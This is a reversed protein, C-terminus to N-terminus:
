QKGVVLAYWNSIAKEGNRQSENGNWIAFGLKTRGRGIDIGSGPEIKRSVVVHWKGDRWVGKGAVQQEALPKPTITGYGRATAEEVPSSRKALAIQNGAELAALGPGPYAPEVMNPHADRPGLKRGGDIQEQWDAKWQWITVQSNSDGMSIPPYGDGAFFQVAISDRFDQPRVTSVDRTADDWELLFAITHGDNLSRVMLSPIQAGRNWLSLLQIPTSPPTKWAAAWPDDVPLRGKAKASMLAGPGSDAGCNQTKCLSQVFYALQWREAESIEAYPTMPTGELGTTIRLFIDSVAAGGKFPGTTFNRPVIPFGADDELGRAAEGDGKGEAGHCSACQLRTFVGKGAAILDASKPPMKRLDISAYHAGAASASKPSLTKVYEVLARREGESL